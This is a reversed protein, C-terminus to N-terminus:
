VADGGTVDPLRGFTRGNPCAEASGPARTYRKGVV